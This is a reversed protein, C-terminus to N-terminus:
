DADLLLGYAVLKTELENIRTQMNAIVSLVTQGEDATVFGFGTNQVLDQIAYDPTGPSSFTVTTLEDTLETQRVVPTQAFFGIRNGLVQFATTITRDTTGSVGAVCGAIIVGSEASGTSVGPWLVLNGGAKDTAGATAGGAQLTLTNGATNATTHRESWIIRAANGGFSLINTAIITGIGVNGSTPQLSLAGSSTQISQAGSSQLIGAPTIRWREANSGANNTFFSL